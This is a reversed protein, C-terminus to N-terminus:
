RREQQQQPLAKKQFQYLTIPNDPERIEILFHPVKKQEEKTPKATGIDMGIYIQRSDM